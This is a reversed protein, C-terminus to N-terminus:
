FRFFVGKFFLCGDAVRPMLAMRFVRAIILPLCQDSPLWWKFIHFILFVSFKHNRQWFIDSSTNWLKVYQLIQNQVSKKEKIKETETIMKSYSYKKVKQQFKPRFSPWFLKKKGLSNPSLFMKSILNLKRINIICGILNIFTRELNVNKCQLHRKEDEWFRRWHLVSVADTVSLHVKKRVSWILIDLLSGQYEFM